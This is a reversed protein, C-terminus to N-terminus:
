EASDASVMAPSAPEVHLKMGQIAAVRVKVGEEVPVSSFADWYEGHIFVKGSPDLRTRAEGIEDLLGQEGTMVRNGRSRLVLAVLLTTIAAFPLCVALATSLRIRMEPPGNVLLLAGVVMAVAGGTGLIGHSAFKAELVFFTVALLLLAAGAWNIPLVALSSLGLLLLIAGGVGPLILGPAQFEVYIGLAGLVLLIFGINPDAITGVLRERITARYEAIEANRLHLTELRGDFRRIERGDLTDLLQREDAAILDLLHLDLAEKETFAKAQRITQEAADANRGRKSTLSRLWAASDNEVKSRMVPDMEIGLAVPSAAGTNTGPAMAAVDAAELLFFGASAARGGSPTVYAIVPIPSAVVISNIKRTADLLGGPTNIRLLVAAANERKAQDIAHGISEATIPHVMGDVDVAIVKPGAATLLAAWLGIAIARCRIGATAAM